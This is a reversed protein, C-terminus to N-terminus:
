RAAVGAQGRTRMSSVASPPAQLHRGNDERDHHQERERRVRVVEQLGGEEISDAGLLPLSSWPLASFDTSRTTHALLAASM